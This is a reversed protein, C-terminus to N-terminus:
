KKKKILIARKGVIEEGILGRKKIYESLIEEFNNKSVKLNKVKSVLKYYKNFDYEIFSVRYIKNNEIKKGSKLVVDTFDVINEQKFFIKYKIGSVQLDINNKRSTRRLVFKKLESGTMEGTVVRSRGAFDYLNNIAERFFPQGSNIVLGSKLLRSPYTAIDAGSYSRVADAALNGSTSNRYFKNNSTFLRVLTKGIKQFNGGYIINEEARVIKQYDPLHILNEFFDLVIDVTKMNLSRGPDKHPFKYSSVIYNNLGVRFERKDEIKYGERDFLDVSIVKGKLDRTVRYSLGSSIIDIGRHGQFDIKILGKIEATDMKIEVIYNGFPHMAYIDKLKVEGALRNIRIGGRNYFVIDLNLKERIADTVLLGLTRRGSVPRKLVTLTRNLLPNKNFEKVLAEVENDFTEVKKLDIVKSSIDSIKNGTLTIDVRGLHSAYSGAQVIRVGNIELPTEILTHSHGGIILDLDGFENALREDDGIGLHSLAIFIDNEKRLNRYKKATEVGDFFTMGEVREPLTSPIGSHKEIQILGLFAIKVGEKTEFIKYPPPQPFDKKGSRVNALILPFKARQIFSKLVEQGYDFDHNGIVAVDCKLKNMLILLPEGKPDYQDVIPNGSFNDGANVLFVNPNLARETEMLKAIKGMNKMNGHIDNLHFITVKVEKENTGAYGPTGPFISILLVILIMLNLNLKNM